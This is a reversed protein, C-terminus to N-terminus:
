KQLLIKNIDMLLGQNLNLKDNIGSVQLNVYSADAKVRGLLSVENELLEIRKELQSTDSKSSIFKEFVTLGGSSIILSILAIIGKEKVHQKATKKEKM